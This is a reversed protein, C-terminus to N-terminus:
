ALMEVHPEAVELALLAALANRMGRCIQMYKARTTQGLVAEFFDAAVQAAPVVRGHHVGTVLDGFRLSPLGGLHPCHQTFQGLSTVCPWGLHSRLARFRRHKLMLCM